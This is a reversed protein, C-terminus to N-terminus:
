GNMIREVVLTAAKDLRAQATAELAEKESKLKAMYKDTNVVGAKNAEIRLGALTKEAKLGAEIVSNKGDAEAKSIMERSRLQTKEVLEKAEQEARAISEIAEFSM